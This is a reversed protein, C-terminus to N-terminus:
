WPPGLLRVRLSPRGYTFVRCRRVDGVLRNKPDSLRHNQAFFSADAYRSLCANLATTDAVVPGTHTHHQRIHCIPAILCRPWGTTGIVRGILGPRRLCAANLMEM